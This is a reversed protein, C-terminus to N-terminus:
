GKAFQIWRGFSGQPSPPAETQTNIPCGLRGNEGGMETWKQFIAPSVTQKCMVEARPAVSSSPQPTPQNTSTTLSAALRPIIMWVAFMGVILIAASILLWPALNRRRADAVELGSNRRYDPLVEPAPAHITSQQPARPKDRLLETAAPVTDRPPPIRHTQDPDFPASLVAGDNLCFALTDDPYTRQCTPCSKM